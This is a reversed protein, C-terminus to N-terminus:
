AARHASLLQPLITWTEKAKRTTGFPPAAAAVAVVGPCDRLRSAAKRGLAVVMARPFLALERELYRARCERVVRVPVSGGEKGASCKVSDTLWAHRLQEDFSRSPFCLDLIYCINRHFADKGTRFCSYAYKYASRLQEERTGDPAHVESPHPDGPEACVLVLEVEDRRGTAGCFGRPVHGVAPAWRMTDCSSAFAPCPEYAALLLQAVDSNLDIIKVGV